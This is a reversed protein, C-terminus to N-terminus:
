AHAIDVSSASLIYNDCFAPPFSRLIHLLSVPRKMRSIKAFGTGLHISVIQIPVTVLIHDGGRRMLQTNPPMFLVLFYPLASPFGVQNGICEGLAVAQHMNVHISVPM